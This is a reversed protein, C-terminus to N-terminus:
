RKKAMECANDESCKEKAFGRWANSPVKVERHKVRVSVTMRKRLRAKIKVALPRESNRSAYVEKLKPGRLLTFRQILDSIVM